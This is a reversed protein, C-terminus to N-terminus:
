LEMDAADLIGKANNALEENSLKGGYVYYLLHRFIEPNVDTISISTVGGGGM